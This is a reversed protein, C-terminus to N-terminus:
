PRAREAADSRGALRDLGFMAIDYATCGHQALDAMIEGVVSCFKFGHGSFGAAVSVAPADPLTDLIFHHDATNTFLCTAMGMVPGAGAPFYREAFPRLVAEDEAHCERDMTDPDVTEGRHHWRGFKFGPVGFVPFGYFTGEDVECNFVPFRAPTFLELDDPQLWVLVQREPVAAGRLAPVLEAAWPGGAIVLRAAEYVGRDTTVTVGGDGLVDWGLVRERAQVRAGAAQAKTVHTVICREPELFGGEPQVLAMFHSPFRYAPFRRTLEASTLAEHALGHIECSRLSGAFVDVDPASVDV